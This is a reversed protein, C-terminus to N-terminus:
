IVKFSGVVNNFLKDDTYYQGKVHFYYWVTTSGEKIPLTGTIEKRYGEFPGEGNTYRVAKNGFINIYDLTESSNNVIKGYSKYIGEIYGIIESQSKGQAAPATQDPLIWNDRMVIELGIDNYNSNSTKKAVKLTHVYSGHSGNNEIVIYNEPLEFSYGQTPYISSRIEIRRKNPSDTTNVSDTIVSGQVTQDSSTAATDSTGINNGPIRMGYIYFSLGLCIFVLVAIVSILLSSNDKETKINQDM